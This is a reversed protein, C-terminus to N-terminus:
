AYGGDTFCDHCLEIGILNNTNDKEEKCWECIPLEPNM